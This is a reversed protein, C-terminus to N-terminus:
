EKGLVLDLVWCGRVHTLSTDRCHGLIDDSDCGADQLADALIPMASFDRSEYMQKALTLVTGTRWEPSCVTRRFPNGFIDRVLAVQAAREDAVRDPAARLLADLVEVLLPAALSPRSSTAAARAVNQKPDGEDWIADAFKDFVAQSLLDLEREPVLGDAYRESADVARRCCVDMLPRVRRCAACGFLRSKRRGTTSSLLVKRLMPEPDESALWEAETM